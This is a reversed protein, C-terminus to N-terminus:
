RARRHDVLRAGLDEHHGVLQDVPGRGVLQDPQVRCGSLRLQALVDVRDTGGRGVDELARAQREVGAPDDEAVSPVEAVAGRVVPPHDGHGFGPPGGGFERDVGGGSLALAGDPHTAGGRHHVRVAVDPDLGAVTRHVRRAVGVVVAVRHELEDGDSVSRWYKAGDVHAASLARSRSMDVAGARSASPCTTAAPLDRM